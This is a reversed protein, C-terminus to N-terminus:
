DLKMNRGSKVVMKPPKAAPVFSDFIFIDGTEFSETLSKEDQLTWYVVAPAFLYRCIFQSMQKKHRVDCAVFDPYTLFNTLLNELIIKQFINVPIKEAFYATTLIGRLFNRRHLRFWLVVAPSFSEICFAGQYSDLLEATKACLEKTNKQPKIEVILPVKGAIGSLVVSFKPIGADSGFVRVSELEAFSMEEIKRSDGAARELTEDHFVVVEGDATLRVDLEIGYGASAANKFAPITNEPVREDWLGRHAIFQKSFPIMKAKRSLKPCILFLYFLIVLCIVVLPVINM